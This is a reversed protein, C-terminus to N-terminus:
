NESVHREPCREIELLKQLPAEVPEIDDGVQIDIGMPLDYSILYRIIGKFLSRDNSLGVVSKYCIIGKRNPLPICDDLPNYDLLDLTDGNCM